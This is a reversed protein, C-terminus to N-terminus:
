IKTRIPADFSQRYIKGDIRVVDQKLAGSSEQSYLRSCLEIKKGSLVFNAVDYPHIKEM